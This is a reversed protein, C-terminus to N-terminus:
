GVGGKTRREIATHAFCEVPFFRDITPERVDKETIAADTEDASKVQLMFNVQNLREELEVLRLEHEGSKRHTAELEDRLWANEQCLRKVQSRLKHKEAEVENLHRSLAFFVKKKRSILRSPATQLSTRESVKAEDLGSEIQRISDNLMEIKQREVPSVDSKGERVLAELSKLCSRHDDRLTELGRCVASADVQIRERRAARSRSRDAAMDIRLSTM